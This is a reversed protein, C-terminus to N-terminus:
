LILSSSILIAFNLLLFTQGSLHIPEVYSDEMLFHITLLFSTFMFECWYPAQSMPVSDSFSVSRGLRETVLILPDREVSVGDFAEHEGGANQAM